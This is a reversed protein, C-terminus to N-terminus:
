SNSSTLYIVCIVFDLGSQNVNSKRGTVCFLLAQVYQDLRSLELLGVDRAHDITAQTFTATMFPALTVFQM